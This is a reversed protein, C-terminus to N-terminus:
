HVIKQVNIKNYFEKSNNCLNWTVLLLVFCDNYRIFCQDSQTVKELKGVENVSSYSADADLSFPDDM